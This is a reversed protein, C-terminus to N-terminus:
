HRGKKGSRSHSEFFEHEYKTDYKFNRGENPAESNIKNQPM